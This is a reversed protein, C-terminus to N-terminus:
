SQMRAYLREASERECLESGPTMVAAAGAAIGFCVASEVPLGRTLGLAIGGVMSDGAGITSRIPVSPSRIRESLDRSVLLAGAGGLSLVVVECWGDEIMRAAAAEQQDEETLETEALEQFERMNPKLLFVGAQAARRLPEGRTDVFVRARREKMQRAVRGYFDDPVGSPLSGSAVVYDGESVDELARLCSQWEDTHMSPGPMGFRFQRGTTNERVMLNQRTWGEVRVMRRPVGEGELLQALLDGPPGGAACIAEADGGLRRVARAVNVGGGGPELQPPTCRLKREAVVSHVSCSKDVAPNMTLTIIRPM